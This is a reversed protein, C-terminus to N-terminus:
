STNQLIARRSASPFIELFVDTATYTKLRLEFFVRGFINEELIM